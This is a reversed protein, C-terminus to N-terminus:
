SCNSVTFIAGYWLPESSQKEGLILSSHTWTTLTHLSAKCAPLSPDFMGLQYTVDSAQASKM